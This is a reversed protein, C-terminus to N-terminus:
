DFKIVTRISEGRKMMDFGENIRELPLEHTVLDDINIKNEMYWDVVKPVDTRGKAGGFSTGQWKKGLVFEVPNMQPSPAGSPTLGVITLVGWHPQLVASAQEILKINGVCEFAYDAGGGTLELLYATMDGAVSKPDVFHTAGFHRAIEERAPNTDVGIIQSAGAMRAGQLVNLGIGGLGFVIVKAGAEVKATFVVAGVGTTVGCGTYFARDLPADKRIKALAYERIVAHDAFAGIGGSRFVDRGNWTVKGSTNGLTSSEAQKVCFNTKGSLCNPCVGCEPCFLPVVHDGPVLSTVEPGCSLVVAGAEHGLVLPFSSTVSGDLRHLDSHCLGSAMIKILVENEVPEQYILTEITLPQNPAHAVAARVAITM